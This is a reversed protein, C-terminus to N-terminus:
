GFFFGWGEAGVFGGSSGAESLGIMLALTLGELELAFADEVLSGRVGVAAGGKFGCKGVDFLLEFAERSKPSDDQVFRLSTFSRSKQPGSRFFLVAVL